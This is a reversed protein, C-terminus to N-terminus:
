RKIVDQIAKTVSRIDPAMALTARCAPDDACRGIEALLKIQADEEEEPTLLMFIMTAPKCDVCDWEIGHPARAFLVLSRGLNVFRAHPIAFGHVLGTSMESERKVLGKYITDEDPYRLVTSAIRSLERIAKSRTRSELHYVEPGGTMATTLRSVTNVKRNLKRSFWITIILLISLAILSVMITPSLMQPQM